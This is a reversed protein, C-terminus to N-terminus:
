SVAQLIKLGVILNTILLTIAAIQVLKFWFPKKLYSIIKMKSNNIRQLERVM